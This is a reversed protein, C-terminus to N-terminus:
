IKIIIYLSLYIIIVYIYENIIHQMIQNISIYNLKIYIPIYFQSDTINTNYKYFLYKKLTYIYIYKKYYIDLYIYLYSNENSKIM